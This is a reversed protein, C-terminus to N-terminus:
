LRCAMAADSVYIVFHTQRILFDNEHLESEDRDAEGLSSTERCVQDAAARGVILEM